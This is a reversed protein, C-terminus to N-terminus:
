TSAVAPAAEQEAGAMRAVQQGVGQRLAAYQAEWSVARAPDDAQAGFDRQYGTGYIMCAAILLEPYYVSLFTEPNEPALPDPRIDGLLEASYAKDPTPMVRVQYVIDAGPLPAPTSLGLIAYKQPVGPKYSADPWYFDLSEVSIRELPNRKSTLTIPGVPTMVNIARLVRVNPPLLFERNNAILTAPQTIKQALFPLDRFIRGDAYLMMSPLVRTFNADEDNMEVALLTKLQSVTEDYTM